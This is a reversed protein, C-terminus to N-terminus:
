PSKPKFMTLSERVMKRNTLLVVKRHYQLQNELLVLHGKMAIVSDAVLRIFSRCAIM